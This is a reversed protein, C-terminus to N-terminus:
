KVSPGARFFNYKAMKSRNNRQVVIKSNSGLIEEFVKPFKPANKALDKTSKIPKTQPISEIEDDELEDESSIGDLKDDKNKM